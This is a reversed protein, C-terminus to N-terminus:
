LGHVVFPISVDGALMSIIYVTRRTGYCQLTSLVVTLATLLGLWKYHVPDKKGELKIFYLNKKNM